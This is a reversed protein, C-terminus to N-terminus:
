AAAHQLYQQYRASGSLAGAIQRKLQSVRARSTGLATAIESEKYGVSLMWAVRRAPAPLASVADIIANVAETASERQIAEEEPTVSEDHLEELVVDRSNDDGDSLNAVVVKSMFFVERRRTHMAKWAAKNVVYAPKQLLFDTSKEAQELITVAMEQTLDEANCASGAIHKAARQLTPYLSLLSNKM